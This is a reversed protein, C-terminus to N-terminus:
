GRRRGFRARLGPASAAGIVWLSLTIELAALWGAYGGSWAVMVGHSFWFLALVGAWFAARTSRPMAAALLLPPLAFVLWAATRHRDDHFAYLYLVALGLLAVILGTRALPRSM